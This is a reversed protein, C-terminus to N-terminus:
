ADGEDALTAIRASEYPGALPEADFPFAYVYWGAAIPNGASDLLDNGRTDTDLHVVIRAM